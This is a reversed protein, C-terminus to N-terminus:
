LDGLLDMLDDELFLNPPATDSDTPELRWEASNVWSDWFIGQLEEQLANAVHELDHVSSVDWARPINAEENDLSEDPDGGLGEFEAGDMSKAGEDEKPQKKKPSSIQRMFEEFSLVSQSSVRVGSSGCEHIEWEGEDVNGAAWSEYPRWCDDHDLKM